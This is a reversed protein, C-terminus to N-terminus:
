FRISDASITNAHVGGKVVARFVKTRHSLRDSGALLQSIKANSAEDFSLLNGNDLRLAFSSTKTGIRCSSGLSAALARDDPESRAPEDANLPASGRTDLSDVPPTSVQDTAKLHDGDLREASPRATDTTRPMNSRNAQNQIQEYPMNQDSGATSPTTRDISGRERRRATNAPGSSSQCGAAVLLGTLSQNQAPASDPTQAFGAAAAIALISSLAISYKM